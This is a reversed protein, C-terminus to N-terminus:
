TILMSQNERDPCHLVIFLSCHIFQSLVIFLRFIFQRLHLFRAQVEGKLLDMPLILSLVM